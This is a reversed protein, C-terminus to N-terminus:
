RTTIDHFGVMNKADQLRNGTKFRIHYTNKLDKWNQQPYDIRSRDNIAVVGHARLLRGCYVDEEMEVNPDIDDRLIKATDYSLFIGAGSVCLGNDHNSDNFTWGCYLKEKPLKGAFEILKKKNVYSSSNTRFIYDYEYLESFELAKKFKGAMYYYEDTCPFRLEASQANVTKYRFEEGGYYYFTHTHHPQDTYVGDWTEQQAKMLADYPPQNYSLVLILIKM